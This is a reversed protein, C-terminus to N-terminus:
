PQLLWGQVRGATARLALPAKSRPPAGALRGREGEQHRRAILDRVDGTPPGRPLFGCETMWSDNFQKSLYRAGSDCVLTVVRKPATQERCYRLAPASPTAM